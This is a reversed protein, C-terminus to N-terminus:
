LPLAESIKVPVITLIEKRQDKELDKWEVGFRKVSEEEHVESYALKIQDYVNLYTKYKIHKDHQLSIVASGFPKKDGQDTVPSYIFSKVSQKLLEHPTEEKEVMLAGSKNIKVALIPANMGSTITAESWPPLKVKLVKEKVITTTVLFFILLLFAIDAMSGANVSADQHRRKSKKM